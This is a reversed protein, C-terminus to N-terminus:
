YQPGWPRRNGCLQGALVTISLSSPVCHASDPVNPHRDRLVNVGGEGLQFYHFALQLSVRISIQGGELGFEKSSSCDGGKRQRGNSRLSAGAVSQLAAVGTTFTFLFSPM